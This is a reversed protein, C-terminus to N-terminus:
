KDSNLKLYYRYQKGTTKSTKMVFLKGKDTIMVPYVAGKADTYTQGTPKGTAATSDKIAHFNGQADQKVNQGCANYSAICIIAAIILQKM